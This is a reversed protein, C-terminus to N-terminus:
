SGPPGALDYGWVGFIVPEEGMESIYTELNTKLEEKSPLQVQSPISEPDYDIEYQEMVGAPNAVVEARFEDDQALREFFARVGSEAM